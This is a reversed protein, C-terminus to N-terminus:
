GGSTLRREGPLSFLLFMFDPDHFVTAAAMAQAHAYTMGGLDVKSIDLVSFLCVIDCIKDMHGECVAGPRWECVSVVTRIM